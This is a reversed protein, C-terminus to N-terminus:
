DAQDRVVEAIAFTEDSRRDEVSEVLQHQVEESRDQVDRILFGQRSIAQVLEFPFKDCGFDPM